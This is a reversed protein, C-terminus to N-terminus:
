HAAAMGEAAWDSPTTGAQRHPVRGRRLRDRSEDDLSSAEVHPLGIDDLRRPIAASQTREAIGLAPDTGPREPTAFNGITSHILLNRDLRGLDTEPRDLPTM